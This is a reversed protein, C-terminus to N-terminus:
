VAGFYLLALICFGAEISFRALCPMANKVTLALM